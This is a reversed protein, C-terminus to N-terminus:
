LIELRQRVFKKSTSVIEGYGFAPIAETVAWVVWSDSGSSSNFTLVIIEARGGVLFNGVVDALQARTEEM